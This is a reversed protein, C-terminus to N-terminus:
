ELFLLSFMILVGLVMTLLQKLSSKWNIEHQLEPILDAGAIYIFGGAAIPIIFLSFNEMIQSLFLTLLVGLFATLASLFNFFLAKKVTFGSHLLVGFDGIEQPIEHLIVALSTALGLKLDVIFSAAILVGDIFNHLGDGVLNMLAAPKCNQHEHEPIHCHRWRVIKEVIFFLFIGALIYLPPFFNDGLKEFAEPLLHLFADGFLGGVAFSVLYLLVRQLRQRSLSLFFVGVLAVISVISVSILSYLWIVIEMSVQPFASRWM